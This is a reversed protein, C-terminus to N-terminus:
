VHVHTDLFVEYVILVLLALGLLLCVLWYVNHLWLIWMLIELHMAKISITFLVYTERRPLVNQVCSLQLHDHSTYDFAFLFLLGHIFVFYLNGLITTQPLGLDDGPLRILSMECRLCCCCSQIQIMYENTRCGHTILKQWPSRTRTRRGLM